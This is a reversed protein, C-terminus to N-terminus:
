EIPMSRSMGQLLDVLDMDLNDAVSGLNLQSAHFKRMM